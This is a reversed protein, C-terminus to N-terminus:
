YRPSSDAPDAVDDQGSSRAADGPNTCYLDLALPVTVYVMSQQGAQVCRLSLHATFADRVHLATPLTGTIEDAPCFGSVPLPGTQQAPLSLQAEVSSKGALDGTGLTESTDAVSISISEPDGAGCDPEISLRFDLSPLEILRSGAPGPGVEVRAPAAAVRLRATEDAPAPVVTAMVALVVSLAIRM